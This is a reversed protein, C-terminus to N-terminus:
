ATITLTVADSTVSTAGVASVIVRFQNGTVYEADLSEITLIPATAGTIATWTSGLDTSVQWQYSVVAGRTATATLTFDADTGDAVTTDVPPTVITIVPNPPITDNDGSTFNGGFAVLVEAKHRTNGHNDTYTRYETWGPTKIGKAINGATTAESVDVGLTADKDSVTQTNRLEDSLYKPKSAENDVKGWLAM